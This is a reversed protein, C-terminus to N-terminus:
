SDSIRALRTQVLKRARGKRLVPIDATTSLCRVRPRRAHFVHKEVLFAYNQTWEPQLVYFDSHVKCRNVYETVNSELIIMVDSFRREFLVAVTKYLEATTKKRVTQKRQLQDYENTRCLTDRTAPIAFIGKM